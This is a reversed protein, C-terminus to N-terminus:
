LQRRQPEGGNNGLVMSLSMCSHIHMSFIFISLLASGWVVKVDILCWEEPLCQLHEVSGAFVVM